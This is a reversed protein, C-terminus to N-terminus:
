CVYVMRCGMARDMVEMDKGQRLAEHIWGSIQVPVSADHDPHRSETSSELALVVVHWCTDTIM